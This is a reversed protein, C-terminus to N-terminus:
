EGVLAADCVEGALDQGSVELLGVGGDNGHLANAPSVIFEIDAVL